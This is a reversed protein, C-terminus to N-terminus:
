QPKTEGAKDGAKFKEMQEGCCKCMEEPTMEPTMGRMGAMMQARMGAMAPDRMMGMMWPGPGPSTVASALPSQILFLAVALLVVLGLLWLKKSM